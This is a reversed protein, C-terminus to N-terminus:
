FMSWSLLEGKKVRKKVTMGVLKEMMNPPIGTSPRILNLDSKRLKTGTPIERNVGISRRMLKRFKEESNIIGTRHKGITKEIIRISKVLQAFEKPDASLKQDPGEMNKDLTFHKEIVCAGLSVAALCAEIGETHDSYGIPVHFAERFYPITSLNTDEIPTPYSSICHLLVFQRKHKKIFDVTSAIESISSMGTSIILPVGLQLAQKILELNDLDGSAIKVLNVKIKKLINVSKKGLPTSFFEINNKKAFNKLEQHQKYSLSWNKAMQFLKPNIKESLFEDPIITQIKIADAGCESASKIMKKAIDIDSNHNIGAEAIIFTPYGNGIIRHNVKIM